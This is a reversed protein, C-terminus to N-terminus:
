PNTCINKSNPLPGFLYACYNVFAPLHTQIRVNLKVPPAYERHPQGVIHPARMPTTAAQVVAEM